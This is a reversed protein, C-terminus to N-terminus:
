FCGKYSCGCSRSCPSRSRVKRLPIGKWSAKEPQDAVGEKPAGDKKPATDKEPSDEKEPVDDDKAADDRRPGVNKSLSDDTGQRASARTGPQSLKLFVACSTKLEHERFRSARKGPGKLV